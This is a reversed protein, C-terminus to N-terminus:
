AAMRKLINVAKLLTESNSPWELVSPDIEHLPVWKWDAHEKPDIVPKWQQESVILFTREEVKRKWRDLFKFVLGIEHIDVISEVALGTEEITERLAGEEFTENEDVSGTVNQWIGGGEKNRKLILCAWVGTPTPAAVVIQVKKHRGETTVM